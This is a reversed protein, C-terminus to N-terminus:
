AAAGAPERAPLAESETLGLEAMLKKERAKQRLETEWDKGQRAYEHALTTTQNRLRTEQARAEKFPDVLHSGTFDANGM